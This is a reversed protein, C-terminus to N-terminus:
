RMARNFLNMYEDCNMQLRIVTSHIQYSCVDYIAGCYDVKLPCTVNCSFDKILYIFMLLVTKPTIHKDDNIIMYLQAEDGCCGESNVTATLLAPRGVAATSLCVPM